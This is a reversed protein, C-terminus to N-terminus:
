FIALIVLFTPILRHIIYLKHMVVKKQGVDTMPRNGRRSEIIVLEFSGSSLSSNTAQGGHM